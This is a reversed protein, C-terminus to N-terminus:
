DSPRLFNGLSVIAAERIATSRKDLREFENIDFKDGGNMERWLLKLLRETREIQDNAERFGRTQEFDHIIGIDVKGIDWNKQNSSLAQILFTLTQEYAFKRNFPLIERLFELNAALFESRPRKIKNYERLIIAIDPFWNYLLPYTGYMDILHKSKEPEVEFDGIAFAYQGSTIAANLHSLKNLFDDFNHVYKLDGPIQLVSSTDDENNNKNDDIIKGFGELWMQCTDVAWVEIKDIEKLLYEKDNIKLYDLFKKYMGRFVTDKNVVLIPKMSSTHLHKKEDIIAEFIQILRDRVQDDDGIYPFILSVRTKMKNM